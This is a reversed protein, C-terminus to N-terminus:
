QSHSSNLRTSKRDRVSHAQLPERTTALEVRRPCHRQGWRSEASEAAVDQDTVEAAALGIGIFGHATLEAALKAVGVAVREGDSSQPSQPEWSRREIHSVRVRKVERGADVFLSIPQESREGWVGPL